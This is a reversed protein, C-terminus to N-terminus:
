KGTPSVKIVFFEKAAGETKDVTLAGAPLGTTTAVTWNAPATTKISELTQNQAVGYFFGQVVKAPTLTITTDGAEATIKSDEALQAAGETSLEISVEFKGDTTPKANKVFYGQYTELQAATLEGAAEPAVIDVMAKAEEADKAKVETPQTPDVVPKQAAVADPAKFAATATITEDRSLVTDSVKTWGTYSDQDFKFGTAATATITLPTGYAYSQTGAPSITSNAGDEFTVEFTKLDVSYTTYGAAPTDAQVVVKFNEPATVVNEALTGKVVITKGEALKVNGTFAAGFEWGAASVKITDNAMLTITQGDPGEVVLNDVLATVSVNGTAEAAQVAALAKAATAYDEGNVTAVIKALVNGDWMYGAPPTIEFDEAKTVTGVNAAAVLSGNITGKTLTLNGAALQVDGNITADNLTVSVGTDTDFAYSAYGTAAERATISSGGTLILEGTGAGSVAWANGAYREGTTKNKYFSAAMNSADVDVNDLTLKGYNNIMRAIGKDAVAADAAWTYDKMDAPCKIQGDKITVINGAEIHFAQTETGPSGAGPKNVVYDCGALDITLGAPFKNPAIFIGKQQSLPGAATITDVGNEAAADIADQLFEFPTEVGAIIVMFGTTPAAAITYTYGSQADGAEAVKENTFISNDGEYTLQGISWVKGAEVLTIKYDADDFDDAVKLTGAVEIDDDLMFSGTMESADVTKGAAIAAAFYVDGESDADITINKDIANGLSLDGAATITWAGDAVDITSDKAFTDKNINSKKLFVVKDGDKLGAMMDALEDEGVVEGNLTAYGEIPKITGSVDIPGGDGISGQWFATDLRYGTDATFTAKVTSSPMAKLDTKDLEIEEAGDILYVKDLVAGKPVTISFAVTQDFDPATASVVVDDIAGLGLYSVNAVTTASTMGAFLLNKNYYRAAADTLNEVDQYYATATAPVGDIWVLFGSQDAKKNISGDLKKITVRYWTDFDIDAKVLVDVKSGKGNGVTVYLNTEGADEDEAEYGSAWVAINADADFTPAEEFGTFKVLQDFYVQGDAISRNLKESGTELKLYNNNAKSIFDDDRRAAGEKYPLAEKEADTYAGLDFADTIDTSWFSGELPAWTNGTVGEAEVEFSTGDKQVADEAFLGFATAVAAIMTMLKKM